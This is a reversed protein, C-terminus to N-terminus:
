RYWCGKIVDFLNLTNDKYDEIDFEGEDFENEQNIYYEPPHANDQKAIWSLDVDDDLEVDPDTDTPDTDSYSDENETDFCSEPDTDDDSSSDIDPQRQRM